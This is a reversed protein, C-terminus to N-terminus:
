IAHLHEAYTFSQAQPVSGFIVLAVLVALVTSKVIM